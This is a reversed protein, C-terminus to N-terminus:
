KFYNLIMNLATETPTNPSSLAHFVVKEMNKALTSGLKDITVNMYLLSTMIEDLQKAETTQLSGQNLVEEIYRNLASVYSDQFAAFTAWNIRIRKLMEYLASQGQLTPLVEIFIVAFRIKCRSIIIIIGTLCHLM